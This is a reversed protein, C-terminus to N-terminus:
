EPDEKKEENENKKPLTVNISEFKKQAEHANKTARQADKMMQKFAASSVFNNVTEQLSKFAYQYLKLNPELSESIKAIMESAALAKKRMQELSEQSIEYPTGKALEFESVSLPEALESIANWDPKEKGAELDALYQPDLDTKDALEEITLNRELRLRKIKEAFNNKHEYSPDIDRGLLYDVSVDYLNALTYLVEITPNFYGKELKYLTSPLLGTNETVDRPTMKKSERAKRCRDALIDRRKSKLLKYKYSDDLDRGLIYELDVKFFDVLKVLSNFNLNFVDSLDINLKEEVEKRTINKKNLLETLREEVITYNNHDIYHLKDLINNDVNHAYLMYDPFNKDRGLLYDSSVNLTDSIKVLMENSPSSYGNEYNSITGKTTNLLKALEEQTLKKAKRAARLRASLM